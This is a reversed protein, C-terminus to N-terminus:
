DEAPVSSSGYLRWRRAVREAAPALWQSVPQGQRLLTRVQTSSAPTSSPEGLVTVKGPARAAAARVEGDPTGYRLFVAMEHDALAQALVGQKRSLGVFSDAGMVQVLTVTPGLREHMLRILGAPGRAAYERRTEPDALMEFRPESQIAAWLMECRARFPTANPKHPPVANPLFYLRELGLTEVAMRALKLHGEHPPDFTGTYLGVRRSGPLPAGLPEVRTAGLTDLLWRICRSGAAAIHERNHYRSELTQGAGAGPVDSVISLADVAIGQRGSDAVGQLFRPLEMEVTTFGRAQWDRITARTETLPSFTGIVRASLVGADPPIELWPALPGADGGEATTASAARHIDGVSAGPSLGGAIGFVLLRRYGLEALRRGAARAVDGWLGALLLMRRWRGSRDRFRLLRPAVFPAPGAVPESRESSGGAKLLERIPGPSFGIAAIDESSGAPYDLGALVDQPRHGHHFRSVNAAPVGGLRLLAQAHLFRDRGLAGAYALVPRRWRGHGDTQFAAVFGDTDPLGLSPATLLVFGSYGRQRLSRFALGSPGEHLEVPWGWDRAAALVHGGVHHEVYAGADEMSHPASPDIVAVAPDYGAESTTAMTGRYAGIEERLLLRTDAPLVDFRVKALADLQRALAPGSLVSGLLLPLAPEPTPLSKELRRLRAAAPGEGDEELSRTASRLGELTTARRAAARLRELWEEREGGLGLGPLSVLLVIFWSWARAPTM